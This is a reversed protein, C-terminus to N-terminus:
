FFSFLDKLLEVGPNAAIVYLALREVNAGESKAIVPRCQFSVCFFKNLAAVFALFMRRHLM